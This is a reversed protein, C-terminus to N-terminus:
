LKVCHSYNLLEGVDNKTRDCNRQGWDKQVLIMILCVFPTPSNAFQQCWLKVTGKTLQDGILIMHTVNCGFMYLVVNIQCIVQVIPGCYDRITDQYNTARRFRGCYGLIFFSGIILM